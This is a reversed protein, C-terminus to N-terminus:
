NPRGWSCEDKETKLWSGSSEPEALITVTLGVVSQAEARWYVIPSIVSHGYKICSVSLGVDNFLLGVLEECKHLQFWFHNTWRSQSLWYKIYAVTGLYFETSALVFVSWVTLDNCFIPSFTVFCFIFFFYIFVRRLLYSLIGVAAAHKGVMDHISVRRSTGYTLKKLAKSTSKPSHQIVKM